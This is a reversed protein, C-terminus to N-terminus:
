KGDRLEDNLNQGEGGPSNEGKENRRLEKAPLWLNFNWAFGLKPSQGGRQRKKEQAGPFVRVAIDQFLRLGGEM